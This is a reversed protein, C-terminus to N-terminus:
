AAELSGGEVRHSWHDRARQKTIVRGKAGDSRSLFVRLGALLMSCCAVHVLPHTPQYLGDNYLDLLRAVWTVEDFKDHGREHELIHADEVTIRSYLVAGYKDLGTCYRSQRRRRDVELANSEGLGTM